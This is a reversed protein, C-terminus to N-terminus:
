PAQYIRITQADVVMYSLGALRTLHDLAEEVTVDKMRVTLRTNRREATASEDIEILLGAYKGVFGIIDEFSTNVFSITLPGSQRPELKQADATHVSLLTIVALALM